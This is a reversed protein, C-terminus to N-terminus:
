KKNVEDNGIFIDMPKLIKRVKTIYLIFDMAEQQAHELWQDVTLDERDLDTGYKTKGFEARTATLIGSVNWGDIQGSSNVLAASSNILEGPTHDLLKYTYEGGIEVPNGSSNGIFLRGAKNASTGATGQEVTVALEGYELSGPATAGTSRFIRIKSAM